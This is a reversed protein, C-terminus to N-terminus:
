LKFEVSECDAVYADHKNKANEDLDFGVSKMGMKYATRITVGSGAFPVLVKGDQIFRSIVDEMLSVPRQTPHWKKQAPVSKHILYNASGGKNLRSDESARAYLFPEYCSAFYHKPRNTQGSQKVWLAPLGNTKFDHQELLDVLMDHWPSIAYWLVLWGNPKILRKAHALTKTMFHEYESAPVENYTLTKHKAKKKKNGLDIGYPPDIEILDFSNANLKKAREFFDGHIFSNMIDKKVGGMGKEEIEKRARKAKREAKDNKHMERLTKIAETKSNIESIGPIEELASALDIENKVTSKSKGTMEATEKLGHGGEASKVKKGKKKQEMDHLEKTMRSKEQWTLDKRGINEMLEIKRMEYYSPKRDYVKSPIKEGLELEKYYKKWATLRRGGALLLFPKDPDEEIKEVEESEAEKKDLLLVSHLLGVEKIDLAFQELDGYDERKRNGFDIKSIHIKTQKYEEIMVTWQKGDNQLEGM